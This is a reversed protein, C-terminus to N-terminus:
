WLSGNNGQALFNLGWQMTSLTPEPFLNLMIECHFKYLNLAKYPLILERSKIDNFGFFVLHFVLMNFVHYVFM